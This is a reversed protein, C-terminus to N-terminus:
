GNWCTECAPRYLEAGGIVIVQDGLTVTRKTYQASAGCECVASLKVSWGAIKQLDLMQGFPQKQYTLDLGAVIISKNSSAVLKVFEILDKFFQGEDVLIVDYKSVEDLAEHLTVVARAPFREGPHSVIEVKNDEYRTDFKYKLALVKFGSSCLKNALKILETSKGAFMCGSICLVNDM